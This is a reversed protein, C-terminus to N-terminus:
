RFINIQIPFNSYQNATFGLTYIVGSQPALPAQVVSYYVPTINSPLTAAFSWSGSTTGGVNQINFRVITRGYVINTSLITAVLKSPYKPQASIVPSASNPQNTVTPLTQIVKPTTTAVLPIVAVPEAPTSTSTLTPSPTKKSAFISTFSKSFNSVNSALKPMFSITAFIGLLVLLILCGLVILRVGIINKSAKTEKPYIVAEDPDEPKLRIEIQPKKTDKNLPETSPYTSDILNTEKEDDVIEAGPLIPLEAIPNFKEKPM